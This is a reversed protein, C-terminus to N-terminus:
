KSQERELAQKGPNTIKYLRRTGYRVESKIFGFNELYDLLMYIIGKHLKGNSLELIRKDNINSGDQLIELIVKTNRMM